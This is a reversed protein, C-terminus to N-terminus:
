SNCAATDSTPCEMAARARERIPMFLTNDGHRIQCVIRRTLAGVLRNYPEAPLDRRRRKRPRRSQFGALQKAKHLLALRESQWMGPRHRDNARVAVFQPNVVCSHGPSDNIPDIRIGGHDGAYELLLRSCRGRFDDLGGLPPEAFVVISLALRLRSSALPQFNPVTCSNRRSESSSAAYMSNFSRRAALTRLTRCRRLRVCAPSAFSSFDLWDRTAFISAPSGDTERSRKIQDSRASPVDLASSERMMALGAGAAHRTGHAEAAQGLCFLDAVQLVKPIPNGLSWALDRNGFRMERQDLFPEGGISAIRSASPRSVLDEISQRSGLMTWFVRASSRFSDGASRASSAIASQSLRVSASRSVSSARVGSCSATSSRRTASCMASGASGSRARRGTILLAATLSGRIVRMSTLAFIIVAWRASPRMM